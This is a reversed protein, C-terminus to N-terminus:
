RPFSNEAKQVLEKVFEVAQVVYDRIIPRLAKGSSRYRLRDGEHAIQNRRKVLENLRALLADRNPNSPEITNWFDQIGVLKLTEAIAGPNQLPKVALHEEVWLRLVNGKRKANDWRGVESLPIKLDSLRKPLTDMTFKGIRYRIKDHFYADMASVALVVASRLLWDLDLNSDLKSVGDYIRVCQEAGQINLDFLSKATHRSM